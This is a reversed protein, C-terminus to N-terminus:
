IPLPSTASSIARVLYVQPHETTGANQLQFTQLDWTPQDLNAYMKIDVVLGDCVPTAEECQNPFGSRGPNTPYSSWDRGKLPCWGGSGDDNPRDLQNMGYLHTYRMSKVTQDENDIVPM